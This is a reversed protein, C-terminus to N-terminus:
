NIFIVFHFISGSHIGFYSTKIYQEIILNVMNPSDNETMPSSDLNESKVSVSYAKKSSDQTETTTDSRPSDGEGNVGGGPGGREDGGGDEGGGEDGDGGGKHRKSAYFDAGHVTKM